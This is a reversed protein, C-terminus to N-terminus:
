QLGIMEENGAYMIVPSKTKLAPLPKRVRARMYLLLFQVVSAGPRIVRERYDNAEVKQILCHGLDTM